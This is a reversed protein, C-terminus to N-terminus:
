DSNAKPARRLTHKFESTHYVAEGAFGDNLVARRSGDRVTAVEIWVSKRGPAIIELSVLRQQGFGTLRFGGEADTTAPAVLERIDVAKRRFYHNPPVPHGDALARPSGDSNIYYSIREPRVIVGAAPRGDAEYIHGVVPVDDRPLRFELADLPQHLFRIPKGHILPPQDPPFIPAQVCVPGYGDATAYLSTFSRSIEEAVADLRAPSIKFRFRGDNASRGLPELRERSDRNPGQDQGQKPFYALFLTADRLPRGDGDLVRGALTIEQAPREGPAVPPLGVDGVVPQSRPATADGRRDDDRADSAAVAFYATALIAPLGIAVARLRAARSAVNRALAWAAAGINIGATRGAVTRCAARVAFERWGEPLAPPMGMLPLLGTAEVALGRRALGAHLRRRARELRGRITTETLGLVHAVEAYSRGEFYFLVVPLRLPGPLRDIAEFLLRRTEVSEAVLGVDHPTSPATNGLALIAARQEHRRRRAAAINAQRAVRSAVRHLWGALSPGAWLAAARRALILFTAQFADEADNPDRLLGRCTALVLPGHRSILAEFAAEDRAAAFRELLQADTLGAVTGATYLAHIARCVRGNLGQAM